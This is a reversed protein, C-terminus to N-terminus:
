PMKRHNKQKQNIPVPQKKNSIRSKLYNSKNITITKSVVQDGPVSFSIDFSDITM